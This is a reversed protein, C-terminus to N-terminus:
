RLEKMMERRQACTFVSKWIKGRNKSKLARMWKHQAKKPTNKIIIKQKLIEHVHSLSKHKMSVQNNQGYLFWLSSFFWLKTKSISGAIDILYWAFWFSWSFFKFFILNIFIRLFACRMIKLFLRRLFLKVRFVMTFFYFIRSNFGYIKRPM